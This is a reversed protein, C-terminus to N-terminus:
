PLEQATLLGQAFGLLKIKSTDGTPPIYFLLQYDYIAEVGKLSRTLGAAAAVGGEVTVDAGEVVVKATVSERINLSVIAGSENTALAISKGPGAVKGFTLTATNKIGTSREAKYQAGVATRLTDGEADFNAYSPSQEGIALIDAYGAAVTAPTESLLKTDNPLIATGVTVPAVPPLVTNPELPIAYYVKYDSRPTDQILTLSMPAVTMDDPNSVIAFVTRPWQDTAQPLVVSASGSPIPVPADYSPDTARIKYTATRLELAPGTFRAALATADSAADAASAVSAIKELIMNM